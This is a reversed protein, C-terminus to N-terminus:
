ALVGQFRTRSHERGEYRLGIVNASPSRGHILANIVISSITKGPQLTRSKSLIIRIRKAGREELFIM